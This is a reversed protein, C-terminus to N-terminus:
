CLEAAKSLLRETKGSPEGSAAALEDMRFVPGMCAAWGLATCTEKPLRLLFEALFPVMRGLVPMNRVAELDWRWERLRGDYWRHLIEARAQAADCGVADATM